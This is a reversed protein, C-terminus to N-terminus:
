EDDGRGPRARAIAVPVGRKAPRAQQAGTAVADVDRDLPAAFGAIRQNRQVRLTAVARKLAVALLVRGRRQHHREGAGVEIAVQGGGAFRAGRESGGVADDHQLVRREILQVGRQARLRADDVLRGRWADRVLRRLPRKAEHHHRM